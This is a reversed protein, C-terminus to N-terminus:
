YLAKIAGLSTTETPVLQGDIVLKPRLSAGSYDSSWFEPYTYFSSAHMIVLGFNQSPNELWYQVLDGLGTVTCWQGYHSDWATGSIIAQASPDYSPKNVWAVTSENWASTVRYVGYNLGTIMGNQSDMYLELQATDVASTEDLASLDFQILLWYAGGSYGGFRLYTQSGYNDTPNNAFVFSDKGDAPGPQLVLQEAAASAALVTALLLALVLRLRRM